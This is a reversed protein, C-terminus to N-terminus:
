EKRYDKCVPCDLHQNEVIRVKKAQRIEESFDIVQKYNRYVEMPTLGGLSVHPRKETYDTVAAGIVVGMEELTQPQHHRLYRKMIKNIAEIPSNSFRIDKGAIIQTIVPQETRSLLEKISKAHNVAGGDAVLTVAQQQPYHQRIVGIASRLAELTSKASHDMGIKWGLIARSFNDSVFAISTKVGNELEWNTTDVHMYQNPQEAQLGKRYINKKYLKRKLQLMRTYKYFTALSIHLGRHILGEFYLSSAPWCALANDEFLAKIKDTETRTLQRPYRKICLELASLGCKLQERLLQEYFYSASIGAISFARRRPLVTCLQQVEKILMDTLSEEKKILPLLSRSLTSLSSTVVELMKKLRENEWYLKSRYLIKEQMVRFSSAEAPITAEVTHWFYATRQPVQERISEPLLHEHHMTYLWILFPDCRHKKRFAM